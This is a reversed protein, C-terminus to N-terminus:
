PLMYYRGSANWLTYGSSGGAQRGELELELYRKYEPEEFQLEDGILFAQVYPRILTERGVLNKARRTGLDYILRSRDLYTLHPLFEKAFHSPYFMPSIVDVFRSLRIIDQGLYSMSSWANFGFVDIGIPISLESRARALFGELAQVEDAGDVRYRVAVSETTGDSPFRIYDFQIEDVGAAEIERAISINYEWVETSYPDVWHEVQAVRTEGNEEDTYGRYVGWPRDREIDWLAYRNNDYAYLRQDKFVVVRGIVYVGRAHAEAVLSDLDVIPDVAGVARPLFLASDYTVRGLDDKLDVVLSSYGRGSILDLYGGLKEPAANPASLYIGTQDAALLARRDAEAKAASADRAPAPSSGVEPSPVIVGSGNALDIVAPPQMASRLRTYSDKGDATPGLRVTRGSVADMEVFGAGFGTAVVITRDTTFWLQGIEEFFGAGLYLDRMGGNETLDRWSRGRDETRYAGDYSTGILWTSLDAPDIAIASIYSSPNTIDTLDIEIWSDDGGTSALLRSGVAVLLLSEHGDAAAAAATLPLPEGALDTPLLRTPLGAPESWSRGGDTSRFLDVERTSSGAPRTCILPHGNRNIPGAEIGIVQSGPHLTLALAVIILRYKPTVQSDCGVRCFAGHEM